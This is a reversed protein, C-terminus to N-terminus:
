TRRTPTGALVADIGGRLYARRWRNITASSTFLVATILAWPHGADLLLLIHCRLRVAPVPSSRYQRLVAERDDPGLRISDCVARDGDACRDATRCCAATRDNGGLIVRRVDQRGTEDARSRDWAVGSSESWPPRRRPARSAPPSRGVRWGTRGSCAPRSTASP